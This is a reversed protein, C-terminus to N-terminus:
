ACDVCIGCFRGHSVMEDRGSDGRDAARCASPFAPVTWTLAREPGLNRCLDQVQPMASVGATVSVSAGPV